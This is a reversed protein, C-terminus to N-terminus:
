DLDEISAVLGDFDETPGLLEALMKVTELDQGYNEALCLLYHERDAYGNQRYVDSVERVGFGRV